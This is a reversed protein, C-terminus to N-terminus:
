KLKQIGGEIVKFEVDISGERLKRAREERARDIADQAMSDIINSAATGLIQTLISM